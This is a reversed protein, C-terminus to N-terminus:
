ELAASFLTEFLERPQVLMRRPLLELLQSKAQKRFRACSSSNHNTPQALRWELGQIEIRPDVAERTTTGLEIWDGDGDWQRRLEILTEPPPASYYWRIWENQNSSNM